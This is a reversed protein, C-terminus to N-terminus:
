GPNNLTIQRSLCCIDFVRDVIKQGTATGLM